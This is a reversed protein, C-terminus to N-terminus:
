IYFFKKDTTTIGQSVRNSNTHENKYKFNIITLINSLIYMALDNYLILTTFIEETQEEIINTRIDNGKFFLVHKNQYIDINTNRNRRGTKLYFKGDKVNIPILINNNLCNQVNEQTNRLVTNYFDIFSNSIDIMFEQYTMGSIFTEEKYSISLHGNQIYYTIFNKLINDSFFNVFADKSYGDNYKNYYPERSYGVNELKNWPVGTLSEVTVYMSLEHCFLMWTIEDYGNKLTNITERIPGRGLCPPMFITFDTKPINQIHSHLYDSCFQVKSYTARNLLFGVNEYPIRGETTIEIKAYLDQIKISKDNENTITVEPWWIYIRHRFDSFSQKLLQLTSDSVEITTDDLIYESLNLSSRLNSKIITEDVQLDVFDNGFFNIFTDRIDFVKQLLHNYLQNITYQM